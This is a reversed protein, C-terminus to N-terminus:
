KKLCMSNTLMNVVTQMFGSSTFHSNVEEVASQSQQHWCLRYFCVKGLPEQFGVYSDQNTSKEIVSYHGHGGLCFRITRKCRM